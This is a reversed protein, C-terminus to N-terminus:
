KKPLPIRATAYLPRELPHLQKVDLGKDRAQELAKVADEKRGAQELALAQHFYRIATGGQALAAQMDQVAEDARNLKLYVMAQTDLVEASAGGLQIARNVLDLADKGKSDTMALLYALNNLALINDDRKHLVEVYDAIAEQYQGQLDCLEARSLLLGEAEASGQPHQADFWKEVKQFHPSRPFNARLVAVMTNAVAVMPAKVKNQSAEECLSLAEDLHGQRGQFGAAALFRLPSPSEKLYQQYLAEAAPAYIERGNRDQSFEDLVLAALSLNGEKGKAFEQVIKVAEAHRGQARLLRAKLEKTRLSQPEVKELNAFRGAAEALEGRQLLRRIYEALYFPNAGEPSTLLALMTEKAELWNDDVEYLGFLLYRDGAILQSKQGIEKLLRIAQRRYIPRTALLLAKARLDDVANKSDRLNEEILALAEDFKQRNGQVALLGALTRRAWQRDAPAAKSSPELFHKLEEEANTEYAKAKQHDKMNQATALYFQIVTRRVSPDDGQAALAAKYRNEAKAVDGVVAYGNALTLDM